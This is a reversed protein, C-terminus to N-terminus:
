SLPEIRDVHILNIASDLTGTVRVRKGDYQQVEEQNDLKYSMNESVKLTYGEEEKGITGTFTQAAATRSQSEATERPNAEPKQPNGPEPTPNPAPQTEPTPEPTPAPAPQQRPQTEPQQPEQMYSWQILDSSILLEASTVEQAAAFTAFVLMTFAISWCKM